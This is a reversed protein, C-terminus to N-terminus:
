RRRALVASVEAGLYPALSRSYTATMHHSDFYVVVGGILGHCKRADCFFQTLPVYSVVQPNKQALVTMLNPRVVTSRSMACPDYRARSRAICEPDSDPRMGPVDETVIVRIGRKAFRSWTALVREQATRVDGATAKAGALYTKSGRHSAFIVADLQPMSLLRQQLKASWRLCTDSTTQTGVPATILGMCDIKAALVIKWGHQEGYLDLAPILRRAHSNGVVAITKTSSVTRGFTCLVPTSVDTGQLCSYTRGDAAAVATDLHAPRAYPRACHNAPVMAAAGYCPARSVARAGSREGQGARDRAGQAPAEVGAEAAAARNAEEVRLYSFSTVALLGAMGATAFAYTPWRRSQWVKGTRVPDEIFRKTLSALVLAATLIVAKSAWSTPRHLVWPAAVILPWHWLYVSYSNDGLWQVPRLGALKAPSWRASSTETALVLAAGVVPILAISGPFQDNHTIFFTSYLILALGSWTTVARVAAGRAGQALPPLAAVLGGVAFEWARTPTAFFALPPNAATFKVSFVFSAIAALTLVCLLAPRQRAGRLLRATPLAVLLLLPWVLYFQEEVSLSWYHQVLSASNEAALYDVAHMGLLWNEWYAAAARIEQLNNQWTLRPMFLVLIVVSAALVASAAPLLRRIRRAWFRTLSIRGTRRMEDALHRTILFGSIVFFVDVGIFGGPLRTPWLHYLVVAAM